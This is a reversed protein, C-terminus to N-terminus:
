MKLLKFPLLFHTLPLDVSCWKCVSYHLFEVCISLSFLYLFLPLFSLIFCLPDSSVGTFRNGSAWGTLYSSPLHSLPEWVHLIPTLFAETNIPFCHRCALFLSLSIESFLSLSYSFSYFLALSLFLSSSLSLLSSLLQLRSLGYSPKCAMCVCVGDGTIFVWIYM